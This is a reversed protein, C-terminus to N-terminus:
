DLVLTFSHEVELVESGSVLFGAAYSLSGLPVRPSM